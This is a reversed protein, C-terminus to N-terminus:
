PQLYVGFHNGNTLYNATANVAGNPSGNRTWTIPKARVAANLNEANGNYTTFSVNGIVLLRVTNSPANYSVPGPPTCSSWPNCGFEASVRAQTYPQGASLRANPDQFSGTEIPTSGDSVTFRVTGTSRNFSATLVPSTLPAYACAFTNPVGTSNSDALLAHGSATSNVAVSPCYNGAVTSNSIGLTIVKSSSWLQVSCGFGQLESSYNAANPLDCSERVTAFDRGTVQYGAQEVSFVSGAPAAVHPRVAANAPLSGLAFVAAGTALFAGVTTRIRFM